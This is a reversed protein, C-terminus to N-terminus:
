ETSKKLGQEYSLIRPLEYIVTGRRKKLLLFDPRILYLRYRLESFPTKKSGKKLFLLIHTLFHFSLGKHGNKTLYKQGYVNSVMVVIALIILNRVTKMTNM